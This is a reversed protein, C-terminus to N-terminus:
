IKLQKKAIIIRIIFCLMILAFLTSLIMTLLAIIGFSSEYYHEGDNSWMKLEMTDGVHNATTNMTTTRIQKKGGVTYEWKLIKYPKTQASTEPNNNVKKSDTIKTLTATVDEKYEATIYDASMSFVLAFVCVAIVFIVSAGILFFNNNDPHLYSKKNNIWKPKHNNSM